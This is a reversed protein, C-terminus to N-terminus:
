FVGYRKTLKELRDFFLIDLADQFRYSMERADGFVKDNCANGIELKELHERKDKDNLLALFEDYAGMLDRGTDIMDLELMVVAVNELPTRYVFKELCTVTELLSLNNRKRITSVSKADYCFCMLLGSTFILKRSMRLKINRLAWGKNAREWQKGAFDVAMTRWYRVIDNLLFRPIKKNSGNGTDYTLDEDLYRKIVQRVVRKYAEPNGISNSELLLLIRQTTNRNTDGQGGIHHILGHSFAINGFAGSPSPNKLNNDKLFQEIKYAVQKHEPAARDDVLLTWDVDSGSTWERRALSGYTVFSAETSGRKGFHNELLLKSKEAQNIAEIIAPWNANAKSALEACFPSVTAWSSM